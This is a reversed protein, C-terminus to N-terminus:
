QCNNSNKFINPNGVSQVLVSAVITADTKHTLTFCHGGLETEKNAGKVNVRGMYDYSVSLTPSITLHKFTIQTSPNNVPSSTFQISSQGVTVTHARKQIVANTRAEQFTEVVARVEGNFKTKNMTKVFTPVAFASLIALIGVTILLEVITFGKQRQLTM